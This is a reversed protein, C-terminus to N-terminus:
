EHSMMKEYMTEAFIAYGTTVDDVFVHTIVGVLKGNQIIPSGSMGQVIGGTKQILDEDTIEIIMNTETSNNKIKKIEVDFKESGNESITTLIFARGKRAEEKNAIEIPEKNEQPINQVEGYIGIDCNIEATGIAEASFYGNLTGVNGSTSKTVSTITATQVEGFDIPMLKGTDQECIGHGLGCFNDTKESYFSITGLGAASDKIWMGVKYEGASDKLPILTTYIEKEDRLIKLEIAKGNSNKIIEKFNYSSNLDKNNASVIIDNVEIGAMKAPCINKIGAEFGEVRTVLLGKSFMKIGFAEGGPIVIRDANEDTASITAPSVTFIMLNILFILKIIKKM